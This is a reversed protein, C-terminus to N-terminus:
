APRYGKGSCASTKSPLHNSDLKPDTEISDTDSKIHAKWDTFTGNEVEQGPRNDFFSFAQSDHYYCNGSMKVPGQLASLGQLENAFRIGIIPQTIKSSQSVINNRITPNINAPRKAKDDYDQLTVGFYIAAHDSGNAVDQLTNNEVIADKSAYLGIGALGTNKIFNNRVIGSINEYYNPNVKLDFFEPSTDFGVGIGMGGVNEIINNEIVANTAGGKAYVGNSCIDHIHNGRVLMNDGNVNDIAEANCDSRSETKGTDYIENDLIQINDSEPKIKIADRGSGHIKSKEIILDSTGKRDNANGWEWKTETSIAYFGGIVEVRSLRGRHADVDFYIASDYDDEGKPLAKQIVGWEGDKSMITIDPERIRLENEPYTGNRLVIKNGPEALEIAKAITKLPTNISGNGSNDNGNPAVFIEAGAAITTTNSPTETNTDTSTTQDNTTNEPSTQNPFFFYKASFTTTIIVLAIATFIAIKKKM